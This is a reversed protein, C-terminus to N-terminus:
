IYLVVHLNNNTSSIPKPSRINVRIVIKSRKKKISPYRQQTLNVSQNLSQHQHHHSAKTISAKRQRIMRECNVSFCVKKVM